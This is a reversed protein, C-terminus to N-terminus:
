FLSGTIFILINKNTEITVNSKNAINLTGEEFSKLSKDNLEYKLGTTTIRNTKNLSFISFYKGKTQKFIRKKNVTYFIGSETFVTLDFNAIEKLIINFNGILHDVRKGDMGIIDIKKYKKNKLWFLIKQFDNYNQNTLEIIKNNNKKLISKKISDLDGMILNPSLKTQIVKNAAGDACIIKNYNKLFIYLDDKKPLKGNLVLIIKEKKM